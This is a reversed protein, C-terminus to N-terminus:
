RAEALPRCEEALLRCEVVEPWEELSVEALNWCEVQQQAEVVTRSEVAMPQAVGPTSMWGAATPLRGQQRAVWEPGTQCLEAALGAVAAAAEVM